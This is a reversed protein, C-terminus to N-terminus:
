CSARGRTKYFSGNKTSPTEQQSKGKGKSFKRRHNKQAVVSSAHLDFGTFSVDFITKEDTEQDIHVIKETYNSHCIKILHEITSADPIKGEDDKYESLVNQYERHLEAMRNDKATKKAQIELARRDKQRERRRRRSIRRREEEPLVDQPAHVEYQAVVQEGM